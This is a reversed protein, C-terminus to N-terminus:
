VVMEELRRIIRVMGETDMKCYALLEKRIRAAEEAAVEEFAITLFALSANNGSAIPMEEYGQGTIAPLVSKLSASGKQSPHYYHFSRFPVILDALRPVLSNSLYTLSTEM